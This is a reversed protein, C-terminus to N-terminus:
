GNVEVGEPEAEEAELDEAEADLMASEHAFFKAGKAKLIYPNLGEVRICVGEDVPSEDALPVAGIYGEEHFRKDVFEMVDFEHHKGAWLEPVHRVGIENCFAKVQEWTLDTLRGQANVHAIRYVFLENTGQPVQYTYNAQIPAGGSTWGVLEGFVLYGQPILGDLRKGANTWLDEEYFSQQYPNNADKVVKRSGYVMDFDTEAVKVGLRRAIRERLSLKRRVITHGIRVSTGHIKQTVTIVANPPIHDSNRFYNETDFHTPLMKDDVRKFSKAVKAQVRSGSSRRVVVYKKCIEHEGLRDFTMGEKLDSVNLGKVYSLSSLPMFLCDSRHGRFKMAKIRRNDELYGKKGPHLNKDDHRYLDNMKAFEDSLQTEATFAIGLDGVQSDKGVIAQFGMLPTGVVNDCNELTNIARLSVVVAAYNPNEPEQIKM